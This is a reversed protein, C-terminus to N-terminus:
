QINIQPQSFSGTFGAPNGNQLQGLCGSVNSLSLNGSGSPENVTLVQTAENFSAAATGVVRYSCIAPATSAAVSVSVGELHGVILDTAGATATGTSHFTMTGGVVKYGGAIVPVGSCAAGAASTVSAVSLLDVQGPGGRWAGNLTLSPCTVPGITAPTSTLATPHNMTTGNTGNFVHHANGTAFAPAIGIALVAAAIVALIRPHKM